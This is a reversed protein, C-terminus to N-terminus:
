AAAAPQAPQGGGTLVALIPKLMQVREEIEEVSELLKGGQANILPVLVHALYAPDVEKLDIVCKIPERGEAGEIAAPFEFIPLGKKREGEPTQDQAAQLGLYLANYAATARQLQKFWASMESIIVGVDARPDRQKARTPVPAAAPAPVTM